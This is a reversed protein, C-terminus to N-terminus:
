RAAECALSSGRRVAARSWGSWPNAHRAWGADDLGFANLIRQDLSVEAPRITRRRARSRCMTFTAKRCARM